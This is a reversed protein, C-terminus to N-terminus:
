AHSRSPRVCVDLFRKTIAATLGWVVHPGWAFYHIHYPSARPKVAHYHAPSLLHRLPVRLIEDVELPAMCFPYAAAPLRAVFPTVHYGTVSVFDDLVGLIELDAPRVGIEEWTERLAADCPSRDGPDLRGGPFSIEGKHQEVHATRVTFLVSPEGLGPVLIVAVAAPSLAELPIQRRTWRALRERTAATLLDFSEMAFGKCGRSLAGAQPLLLM